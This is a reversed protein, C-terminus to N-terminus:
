CPQIRIRNTAGKSEKGVKTVRSSSVQALLVNLTHKSPLINQPFEVVKLHIRNSNVKFYNFERLVNSERLVNGWGFM